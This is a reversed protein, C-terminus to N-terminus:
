FSTLHSVRDFRPLSDGLAPVKARALMGLREVFKKLSFRNVEFEKLTGFWPNAVM